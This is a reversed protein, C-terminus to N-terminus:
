GGMYERMNLRATFEMVTIVEVDRLRFGKGVLQYQLDRAENASNTKYEMSGAWKNATITFLARRGDTVVDYALRM